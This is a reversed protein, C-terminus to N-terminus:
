VDALGIFFCLRLLTFIKLGKLVFHAFRHTPGLFQRLINLYTGIENESCVKDTEAEVEGFLRSQFGGGPDVIQNALKKEINTM